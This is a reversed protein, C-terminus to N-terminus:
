RAALLKDIQKLNARAYQAEELDGNLDLMARFHKAAASLIELNGNAQALRAYCLGLLYHTYPDTKDYALSKQCYGVAADLHSQKYESNCLGFFALSRLDHAIDTQAARKKRGVGALYGLVYYDMKGAFKSDFDSLRLYAIYESVSAMYDGTLRLSDALWMHPEAIGPALKIAARASEISQPYLEKMRYAEAQRYLAVANSKDRQMVVNLQRIAEDVAGTDLLMGALSVRAELYDPDIQIAQRFAAEAKQNEYLANYARGLYLAATSFKPDIELSRQFREVAKQYNEAFGKNYLEIGRHIEDLAAKNRRRAILIKITVTQERGPYVMEERPGDPEYGMRVGEVTHSGARLGPLRLPAAKNVVGRSVGDVFIEVGDMNTEFVLTGEKPPPAKGARLGAPIYALGMNPDFSGRDSTPNQQGQTAERVNRRTYDSLEDATVIGDGNEDAEGELGKVVYYTFIGHGGGWNAGEFSRERDRTATLSFMSRSLDLLSRNYSQADADPAIAGSHCSDTLLVKWKAKIRSGVVNGLTDMPYGTGPINLPDLDYPALYARGSNVFGHGAFYIVVRDDEKAVSPLWVELERKINALTANAGTLRHINEAHFNGGEPNILVSYVSDADRESFELQSKADLNKYKAVGVILAYGRPISTAGAPAGEEEYQLDRSKNQAAATSLCVLGAIM